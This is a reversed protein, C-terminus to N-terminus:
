IPWLSRSTRPWWWRWCQEAVMMTLLFLHHSQQLLNDVTEMQGILNLSALYISIPLLSLGPSGVLHCQPFFMM